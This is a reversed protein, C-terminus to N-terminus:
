LAGELSFDSCKTKFSGSPNIAPSMRILWHRQAVRITHPPIITKEPTLDGFHGGEGARNRFHKQETARTLSQEM